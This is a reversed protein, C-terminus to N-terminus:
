YIVEFIEIANKKGKLNMEGMEKFQFYDKTADYISRSVLIQGGLALSQLRSAVNVDDGIATYDMHQPSGVNGVIVRGSSIGIGTNFNAQIWANPIIRIRQQMAIAAEVARKESDLLQFPAGFLAVIMDGVFKNVTGKRSFIVEVMHTFYENLHGVIKEPSLEECQATFNRIDSFLVVVDRRVPELSIDGQSEMIAQVVQASVYRELNSKIREEKLKNEHLQANEIAAAAQSTLANFLKLDAGTYVIPNVSGLVIAGIVHSQLKLPACILSSFHAESSILRPDTSVHNIIEGNGTLLINGIIGKGLVIETASLEERGYASATEFQHTESNLLVVFGNDGKILKSAEDLVLEAVAKLGLSAALKESINYLLTIEKYRELTEHVLAKKEASQSALFSLLSAVVAAKTSGTVWGLGRDDLNIPYHPADPDLIPEGLLLNGDADQISIPTEAIHLVDELISLWEKQILRKLNLQVM